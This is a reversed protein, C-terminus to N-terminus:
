YRGFMAMTGGPCMGVLYLRVQSLTIKLAVFNSDCSGQLELVPQVCLWPVRPHLCHDLKKTGGLLSSFWCFTLMKLRLFETLFHWPYIHSLMLLVFKVGDPQLPILLCIKGYTTEAFNGRLFKMIPFTVIGITIFASFLIWYLQHFLRLNPRGQAVLGREAFCILFVRPVFLNRPTVPATIPHPFSFSWCVIDM